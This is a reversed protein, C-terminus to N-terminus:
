KNKILTYKYLSLPAFLMYASKAWFRKNELDSPSHYYSYASRLALLADEKWVKCNLLVGSAGVAGFNDYGKDHLFVAYDLDDIPPVAYSYSNRKEFLYPNSPGLYNGYWNNNISEIKTYNSSGIHLSKFDTEAYTLAGNKSYTGDSHFNYFDISERNPIMVRFNAGKYEIDYTNRKEGNYYINIVDEMSTVRSDFFFFFNGSYNAYIWDKGDPDVANMPNNMCYAYPHFNYYKECLPDMQTFHGLIPDYQRAGYDYFNLGHMRDLEKGNYKYKQLVDNSGADAFISGIEYRITHSTDLTEGPEAYVEEWVTGTPFVENYDGACVTYSSVCMCFSVAITKYDVVTSM